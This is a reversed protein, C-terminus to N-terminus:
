PSNIWTGTQNEKVSYVIQCDTCGVQGNWAKLNSESVSTKKGCEPCASRYMLEGEGTQDTPLVFEPNVIYKAVVQGGKGFDPNDLIVREDKLRELIEGAKQQREADTVFSVNMKVLKSKIPRQTPKIEGILVGDRIQEYHTESYDIKGGKETDVNPTRVGADNESNSVAGAMSDVPAPRNEIDGSSGKNSNVSEAQRPLAKAPVKERQLFGNFRNALPSLEHNAAQFNSGDSNWDHAKKAKLSFAPMAVLPNIYVAHFMSVFLAGFSCAISFLMITIYQEDSGSELMQVPKKLTHSAEQQAIDVLRNQYAAKADLIAIQRSESNHILSARAIAADRTIAASRKMNAFSSAGVSYSATQTDRRDADALQSNVGAFVAMCAIVCAFLAQIFVGFSLGDLRYSTVLSKGLPIELAAIGTGAAYLMVSWIFLSEATTLKSDLFNGMHYSNVLVLSVAILMLLAGFLRSAGVSHGAIVQNRFVASM